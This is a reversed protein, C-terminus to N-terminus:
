YFIWVISKLISTYIHINKLDGLLNYNDPTYGANKLPTNWIVLLQKTLSLYQLLTARFILM